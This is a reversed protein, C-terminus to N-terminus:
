KLVDGLFDLLTAWSRRDAAANYALGPIGRKDAGPNTFSHKAGGYSIFEWDAGADTLIKQFRQVQEAPVFGDAAGNCVLISAKVPGKGPESPLGGHFSAVGKLDAGNLAMGLVVSGGMCYGIAAIRASDVRADKKLVDYAAMFRATAVEQNSALAGAWEGAEQPHETTKGDGFMDAVFAVYGKKALMKAREKPYDNLGWWEHVVIVGPRKGSVADDYVVFGKLTTDGQKYDVPDMKVDARAPTFLCAMLVTLCFVRM